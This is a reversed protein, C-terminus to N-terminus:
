KKKNFCGRITPHILKPEEIMEFYEEWLNDPFATGYFDGPAPGTSLVMPQCPVTQNMLRDMQIESLTGTATGDTTTVTTTYEQTFEAGLPSSSYGNGTFKNFWKTFDSLSAM